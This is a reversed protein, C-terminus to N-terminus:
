RGDLAAAISRGLLRYGEPGPHLRDPLLPCGEQGACAEDFPTFANVFRIKMAAQGEALARNVAEIKERRARLGPGRPLISVVVIEAGPLRQQLRAVIASIGGLVACAEDRALNNTGILLVARRFAGPPFAARDIRDLVNETRDGGVGFNTVPRGLDAAASRWGDFISDGVLLTEAPDAALGAMRRETLRQGREDGRPAPSIAAAGAPLPGCPAAAAGVALLGQLALLALARSMM